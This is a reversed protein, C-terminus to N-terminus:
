HAGKWRFFTMLMIQFDLILSWNEIYFLDARIREALDTDGRFGNIQAWGTMGPIINHRANYFPISERFKKILEPREPRPGVLSLDGKLVNWFQPLEDLNWRRIFTGIRLRRDDHQTAWRAGSEKEADLRMSRIKIIKFVRGRRGVRIQRYFVPGPSELYVLLTLVAILPLSIVCGVLAGVIDVMRKMAANVPDDLRLKTVGLLPVSSITTLELGSLLIQFGSPIVMLSVMAKECDRALSLVDEESRNGDALVVIDVLGNECFRVVDDYHDLALVGAPPPHAFRGHPPPACGIVDYPHWVDRSTAGALRATNDTWDVFLIRQRFAATLGGRSMLRQALFRGLLLTVLLCPFSTAVYIRSLREDFELVLSIGPFALLWFFMAKIVVPFSRRFRLLIHSQYAGCCVLLITALAAGFLIRNFYGEFTIQPAPLYSSDPPLILSLVHFRLFYASLLGSFIAIVDTVFLWFRCIDEKRYREQKTFLTTTSGSEHVTKEPM